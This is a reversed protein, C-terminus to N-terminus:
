CFYFHKKETPMLDARILSATPRSSRIRDGPDPSLVLVLACARLRVGM